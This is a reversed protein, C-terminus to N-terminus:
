RRVERLMRRRLERPTCRFKFAKRDNLFLVPVEHGYLVELAADGDVLRPAGDAGVTEVARGVGSGVGVGTGVSVSDSVNGEPDKVSGVVTSLRQNGRTGTM